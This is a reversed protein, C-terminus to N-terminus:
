KISTMWLYNSGHAHWMFLCCSSHHSCIARIVFVSVVEAYVCKVENARSCVDRESAVSTTPNEKITVNQHLGNVPKPKGSWVLARGRTCPWHPYLNSGNTWLNEISGKSNGKCKPLPCSCGIHTWCPKGLKHGKKKNEVQLGLLVM